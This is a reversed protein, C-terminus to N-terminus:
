PTAPRYRAELRVTVTHETVQPTITSVGEGQDDSGREVWWGGHNDSGSGGKMFADGAGPGWGTRETRIKEWGEEEEEEDAKMRIEQMALPKKHGGGGPRSCGMSSTCEEANLEQDRSEEM